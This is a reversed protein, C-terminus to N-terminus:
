KLPAAMLATSVSMALLSIVIRKVDMELPDFLRQLTALATSSM